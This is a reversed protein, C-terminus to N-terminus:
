LAHGNAQLLRRRDVVRQAAISGRDFGHVTATGADDDTAAVMLSLAGTSRKRAPVREFHQMERVPRRRLECRLIRVRDFGPRTPAALGPREHESSM